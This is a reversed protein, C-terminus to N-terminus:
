IMKGILGFIIGVSPILLLSMGFAILITLAIGIAKSM